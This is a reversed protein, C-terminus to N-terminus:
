IYSSVLTFTKVELYRGMNEVLSKTVYFISMTQQNMNLKSSLDHLQFVSLRPEEKQTVILSVSLQRKTM